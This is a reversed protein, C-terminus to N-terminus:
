VYETLMPVFDLPRAGSVVCGRKVQLFRAIIEEQATDKMIISLVPIRLM